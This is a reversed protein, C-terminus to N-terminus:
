GADKEGEELGWVFYLDDSVLEQAPPAQNFAYETWFGFLNSLFQSCWRLSYNRM